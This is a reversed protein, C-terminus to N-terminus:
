SMSFTPRGPAESLLARISRGFVSAGISSSANRIGMVRLRTTPGCLPTAPTTRRGGKGRPQEAHARGAGEVCAVARLMSPSPSPLSRAESVCQGGVEVGKAGQAPTVVDRGVQHASNLVAQARAAAVRARLAHQQAVLFRAGRRARVAVRQAM